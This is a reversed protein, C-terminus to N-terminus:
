VRLKRKLIPYLAKAMTLFGLDTPHGGDVTSEQWREKFLVSGNYSFILRDGQKNM